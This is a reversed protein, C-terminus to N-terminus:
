KPAVVVVLALPQSKQRDLVMTVPSISVGRVQVLFRDEAVPLRLCFQGRPDTNSRVGGTDRVIVGTARPDDPLGGLEAESFAVVSAEAPRGGEYVAVGCLLSVEGDPRGQKEIGPFPQPVVIWFANSCGAAVCGMVAMTVCRALAAPKLPRLKRVHTGETSM